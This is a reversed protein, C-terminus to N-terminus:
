KLKVHNHKNTLELGSSSVIYTSVKPHVSLIVIDDEQGFVGVM